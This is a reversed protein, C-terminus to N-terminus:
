EFAVIPLRFRERLLRDCAADRVRAFAEPAMRERFAALETEADDVLAARTPEDVAARARQLLEEDLATLRAILAQRADGRVGRASARAVDLERAAADIVSEFTGDIAGTARANTLRMVVRELHAALSRTARGQTKEGADTTEGGSASL